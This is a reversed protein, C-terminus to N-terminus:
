LEITDFLPNSKLVPTSLYSKQELSTFGTSKNRNLAAGCQVFSRSYMTEGKACLTWRESGSLFGITEAKSAFPESFTNDSENFDANDYVAM